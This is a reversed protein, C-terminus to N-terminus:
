AICFRRVTTTKTFQAALEPLAKSLAATDLRRSEEIRKKIEEDSLQRSRRSTNRSNVEMDALFFAEDPSCGITRYGAASVSRNLVGLLFDKLSM